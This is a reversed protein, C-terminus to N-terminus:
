GNGKLFDMSLHQNLRTLLDMSKKLTSSELSTLKELPVINEPTDNELIRSVQYKIRLTMLFNYVQNIENTTEPNVQEIKNLIELREMSNLSDIKHKLAFIRLYGIIPLLVRKTDVNQGSTTTKFRITAHAMHYFFLDNGALKEHVFQRLNDALQGHGYIGRFDYFISSDLINQPDPTEIWKTFTQKWESLPQCWKRNSAMVKGECYHYGTLHLNKNITKALEHFYEMYEPKFGEDDIIIANDQDTKLSQEMRGESGMVMFAFKCPPEGADAIAMKIVKTTIADAVSSIIRTINQANDSNAIIAHILVHLRNYIKQLDEILESNEIEQILYSLSNRQMELAEQNSIVGIVNNQANKVALHSVRNQKFQLVAEYLLANEQIYAVPASMVTSVPLQVDINKALVRNKLDAENVAGILTNNQKIYVIKQKKNSMLWAAQKISSEPSCAIINKVLTKIPQNMLLLSNQLEVSLRKTNKELKVRQSVDKAIVIFADQRAYEIQSISIVVERKKANSCKLETELTVSKKPHTILKKAEHWSMTFIDGFKQGTLEKATCDIMQAFRLNNFIVRNNVLMLTGDTSAEVLTKYKQRSLMLNKETAQRKQEIKLSQRVVYVLTIIIIIIVLTSIFFLRSKLQAIEQKVDDLYIGTGIIWNWPGFGKVYSLKPVVRSTDDKWQWYYNIFGEGNQQVTKVADVFLKKEHTDTFDSLNTGNLETRYPHMVMKPHTDIIWFYDKRETGYRMLEVQHAANYKAEPLTENGSKFDIYHENLISWASNTLEKIMEKKRDMMAKEFQPIIVVFFSVIFLAVALISPAVIGLFFKNMNREM